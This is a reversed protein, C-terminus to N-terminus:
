QLVEVCVPNSIICFITITSIYILIYEYYLLFIHLIDTLKDLDDRKGVTHDNETTYKWYKPEILRHKDAVDSLQLVLLYHISSDLCSYWRSPESLLRESRSLV